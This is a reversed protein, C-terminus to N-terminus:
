LLNYLDAIINSMANQIRSYAKAPTNVINASQLYYYMKIKRGIEMQGINLGAMNALFDMFSTNKVVNIIKDSSNSMVLKSYLDKIDISIDIQTPLGDDNWQCQDGKTVNMGSIIGMDINFMGKSYAKVLFPEKYSNPDHDATMRPLVFALLMIYPKLVNLYISLSDHDPSRFKFNISYSRDFGSDSWIEPFIIKGGELVTNVGSSSLSSIIGGGLKQAAGSLASSISSTVDKASDAFTSALNSGGEGFLFRIENANDAFGNILSALSSETTENSFSESVQTLSDLYFIVNEKADFFTKFDVNQAVGWNFSKLKGKVGNITVEEDGLGLYVAVSQMMVNVYLFYNWFDFEVSYYRGKGEILSSDLNQIGGFLANAITKQDSERFDDMFVQKCPTLFLLPLHSIIKEGYKRGISTGTIRRDVSSMFQYPIGEIGCMNSTLFNKANNVDESSTNGNILSSAEDATLYNYLPM